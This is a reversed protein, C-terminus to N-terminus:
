APGIGFEILDDVFSEVLRSQSSVGEGDRSDALMEGVVPVGLAFIVLKAANDSNNSGDGVVDPEEAEGFSELDDGELESLGSSVSDL